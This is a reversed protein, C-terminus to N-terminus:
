YLVYTPLIIFNRQITVVSFKVLSTEAIQANLVECLKRTELWKAQAVKYDIDIWQSCPVRRYVLRTIGTGQKEFQMVKNFFSPVFDTGSM